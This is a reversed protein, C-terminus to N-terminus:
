HKVLESAMQCYRAPPDELYLKANNNERITWWTQDWIPHALVEPRHSIVFISSFKQKLLGFISILGETGLPDLNGFPEDVILVNSTSGTYIEKLDRMGFLFALGAKHREGGSLLSSNIAMGSDRRDLQFQLSGEQDSLCLSINRNPWLIDAYAPVTREAADRLIAQFRDQKMGKTGFAKNLAELCQIEKVLSEQKILTKELTQERRHLRRLENLREKLHTLDESAKSIKSASKKMSDRLNRLERDAQSFDGQPLTKLEALKDVIFRGVTSRDKLKEVGRRLKECKELLVDKSDSPMAKLEAEIRIKRYSTELESSLAREKKSFDRIEESLEEPSRKCVIAELRSRLRGSDSSAKLERKLIHLKETADQLENRSIALNTRLENVTEPTMDFPRQCHPCVADKLQVDINKITRKLEAEREKCSDAESTLLEFSDKPEDIRQLKRLIDQREEAQPLDVKHLRALATKADTLETQIEEVARGSLKRLQAQLVDRKDLRELDAQTSIYEASLNDYQKSWANVESETIDKPHTFADALTSGKFRSMIQKRGTVRQQLKAWVESLDAYTKADEENEEQLHDHFVQATELDMELDILDPFTFITQKVDVLENRVQEFDSMSTTHMSLTRKTLERLEDYLHLNFMVTLRSRREHEKGHIMVNNLEQVLYILNFFTTEDVHLIEDRIWKHPSRVADRPLINQGSLRDFLMVQNKFRHHKRYQRIEFPHDDILFKLSAVMDEGSFMNVMDEKSDRKRQDRKGGKGVQVQAFVEFISSKGAGLYGGDDVNLGRILVLGQDNLPVSCKKYIYANEFELSEYTIRSMKFATELGPM